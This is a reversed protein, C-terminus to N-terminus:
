KKLHTLRRLVDKPVGLKELDAIDYQNGYEDEVIDGQDVYADTFNQLGLFGHLTDKVKTFTRDSFSKYGHQLMYEEMSEEDIGSLSDMYKNYETMNPDNSEMDKNWAELAKSYQTESPIKLQVKKGDVERTVYGSKNEAEVKEAALKANFQAEDQALANNKYDLDKQNWYNSWYRSDNYEEVGRDYARDSEYVGRDYARDSEHVGRDYARDSEFVGRDYNTQNWYDANLMQAYQMAQNVEDNWKQYERNYLTNAYDSTVNYYNVADSVLQGHENLQLNASAFADSKADRFQQYAENYMQNRHQYTADYANLTRDYEKADADNLMGLQRYMEEGEMQYANMAMQYYQPLNNYADEIFANYAQNGATTAYSSGYGGTLASAQGITDEMAQKGSSMASALAQQFLPDADVDYSFKDRGQIQAMLDKVQDSYSTKGSQIKELQSKIYTDAEIVAPPKSFTSSLTNKVDSSIISDKSTLTEVRNLGENAKNQATGQENSASFTSNMKNITADDVGNIIAKKEEATSANDYSEKKKKFEEVQQQKTTAM